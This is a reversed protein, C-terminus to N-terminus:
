KGKADSETKGQAELKKQLEAQAQAQAEAAKQQAEYMKQIQNLIEEENKADQSLNMSTYLQLLSLHLQFNTPDMKSAKRFEAAAENNMGKEKYALGLLINIEPDNSNMSAATKYEELARDPDDLQQYVQGLSLHLYPDNPNDKLAEQYQAVAQPLQGSAVFQMARMSPDYIDIRAKSRVQEFWTQLQETGKQEQLSTRINEKEKEFEEGKAEKRGTVKIIHYGYDTKVPESIQGVALSFAAESFEKVMTDRSFFGLDGGKDKSGPDKSYKKAMDAFTKGGKIEALVKEAQQKALEFNRETGVPEILIHSAKVQEYSRVIDEDTVTYTSKKAQLADIALKERIMERLKKETLNSAKLQAKYEEESPFGEKLTKLEADIDKNDVKVREKKVQQLLLEQNIMQQLTQFKLQDVDSRSLTGQYQQYFALNNQLAEQFKASTIVKGNVKAVNTSSRSGSLLNSGGVWLLSVVFAAIVVILIGKM